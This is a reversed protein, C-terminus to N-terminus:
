VMFLFAPLLNRSAFGEPEHYVSNTPPYFRHPSVAPTEIFSLFKIRDRQEAHVVTWAM